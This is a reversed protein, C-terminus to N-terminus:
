TPIDLYRPPISLARCIDLLGTAGLVSAVIPFRAEIAMPSSRFLTARENPAYTFAFYEKTKTDYSLSIVRHGTAATIDDEDLFHPTHILTGLTHSELM